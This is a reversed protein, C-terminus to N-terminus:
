CEKRVCYEKCLIVLTACRKETMQCLSLSQTCLDRVDRHDICEVFLTFKNHLKANKVKEKATKAPRGKTFNHVCLYYDYLTICKQWQNMHKTTTNVYFMWYRYRIKGCRKESTVKLIHLFLHPLKKLRYITIKQAYPTCWANSMMCEVWQNQNQNQRSRETRRLKAASLRKRLM